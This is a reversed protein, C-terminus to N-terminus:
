QPGFKQIVEIIKDEFNKKKFWRNQLPLLFCVYLAQLAALKDVAAEGDTSVMSESEADCFENSDTSVFSLTVVFSPYSANHSREKHNRIKSRLNSM